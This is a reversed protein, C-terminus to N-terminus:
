RGISSIPETQYNVQSSFFNREGVILIALVAGGFVPIEVATLFVRILSNVGRMKEITAGNTGEIPRDIREDEDRNGFSKKWNIELIKNWMSVLSLIAPICCGAALLTAMDFTLKDPAPIVYINNTSGRRIPSYPGLDTSCTLGCMTTNYIFKGTTPSIPNDYVNYTCNSTEIRFFEVALSLLGTLFPETMLMIKCLRVLRRSVLLILAPGCFSLIGVPIM